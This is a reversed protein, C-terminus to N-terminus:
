LSEGLLELYFRDKIVERWNRVKTPDIVREGNDYQGTVFLWYPKHCCKIQREIYSLFDHKESFKHWIDIKMYFNQKCKQCYLLVKGELYLVQAYEQPSM